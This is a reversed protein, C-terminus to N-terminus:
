MYYSLDSGARYKLLHSTKYERLTSQDLMKVKYPLKPLRNPNPQFDANRHSLEKGAFIKHKARLYNRIAISMRAMSVSFM